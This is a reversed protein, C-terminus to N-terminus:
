LGMWAEPEATRRRLLDFIIGAHYGDIVTHNHTLTFSTINRIATTDNELVVLRKETVGIALMATEPPNIVVTSFRVGFNGISSITLTSGKMEELSLKNEKLRATKERLEESIQFVNKDQAERIVIVMIGRELGVGIGVNCSDYIVLNGDIVASNLLPYDRLITAMIRAIMSTVTVAPNQAKLKDKLALLADTEVDIYGSLQPITALSEAMKSGIFKRVSSLKECSKVRKGNEEYNSM